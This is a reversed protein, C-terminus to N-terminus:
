REGSTKRSVSRIWDEVQHRTLAYKRALGVMSLGSQFERALRRPTIRCMKRAPVPDPPM